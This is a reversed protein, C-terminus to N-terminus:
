RQANGQNWAGGQINGQCGDDRKEPTLEVIQLLCPSLPVRLDNLIQVPESDPNIILLDYLGRSSALYASGM